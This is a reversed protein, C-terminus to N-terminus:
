QGVARPPKQKEKVSRQLQSILRLHVLSRMPFFLVFASDLPNPSSYINSWPMWITYSWGQMIHTESICRVITFTVLILKLKFLPWIDLITVDASFFFMLFFLEPFVNFRTSEDKKLILAFRFVYLIIPHLGPPLPRRLPVNMKLILSLNLSKNTGTPLKVAVILFLLKVNPSETNEQLPLVLLNWRKFINKKPVLQPKIIFDWKM